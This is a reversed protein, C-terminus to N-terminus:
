IRGRQACPHLTKNDGSEIVVSVRLLERQEKDIIRVKFSVFVGFIAGVIATQAVKGADGDARPFIAISSARKSRLFRSATGAMRSIQAAQYADREGCGILLLRGAKLGKGSLLFYATEGTKAAFEETQIVRTILGGAAEDLTKLLGEGAKEDKFVAVALAEVDVDKCSQSSGIAEM